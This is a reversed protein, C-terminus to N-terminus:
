AAAAPALQLALACERGVSQAIIMVDDDLEASLVLEAHDAHLIVRSVVAQVRLIDEDM